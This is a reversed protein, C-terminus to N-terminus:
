PDVKGGYFRGVPIDPDEFYNDDILCPTSTELLLANGRGTFAHPTWPDVRLIQGEGLVVQRDGIQLDVAGKVVFFTEVKDKHRHIPCTQGDFVFLYKACYGAEVENAIWYEILGVREFDRLGFDFLLPEVDPLAVGWQEIQDKFRAMAREARPGRVSYDLGRAHQDDKMAPGKSAHFPPDGATRIKVCARIGDQTGNMPRYDPSHISTLHISDALRGRGQTQPM